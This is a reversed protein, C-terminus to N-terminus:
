DFLAYYGDDIIKGDFTESYYASGFELDLARKSLDDAMRNHERYIHNYTVMPFHKAMSLIEECWHKLHPLNLSSLRNVWSIIVKSDGMIMQLPLGLLICISLVSWLALLEARTNTSDGNVKHSYQSFLDKLDEPIERHLSHDGGSRIFEYQNNECIKTISHLVKSNLSLKM